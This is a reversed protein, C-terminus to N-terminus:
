LVEIREPVGAMHVRDRVIGTTVLGLSILKDCPLYFLFWPLIWASGDTLRFVNSVELHADVVVDQLVEERGDDEEEDNGDCDDRLAVVDAVEDSPSDPIKWSSKGSSVSNTRSIRIGM